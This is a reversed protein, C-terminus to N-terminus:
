GSTPRYGRARGAVVYHHTFDDYNGQQDAHTQTLQPAGV